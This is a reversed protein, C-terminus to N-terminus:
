IHRAKTWLRKDQANFSLHILSHYPVIPLFHFSTISQHILKPVQATTRRNSYGDKHRIIVQRMSIYSHVPSTGRVRPIRDSKRKVEMFQECSDQLANIRGDIKCECDIGKFEVVRGDSATITAHSQLVVTVPSQFFLQYLVLIVLPFTCRSCYVKTSLLETQVSTHIFRRM